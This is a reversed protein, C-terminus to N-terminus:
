QTAGLRTRGAGYHARYQLGTTILTITLIGTLLIGSVSPLWPSVAIAGVFGAAAAMPVIQAEIGHRSRLLHVGALLASLEGLAAAATISALGLGTFAAWGALLLGGIRWLNALMLTRSDGLALAATGPGIRFIRLALACGLFSLVVPAVTFDNGFLLAIVHNGGWTYVATFVTAAIALLLLSRRYHRAFERRNDQVRALIPLLLSLSGRALVLTPLLGLQLALAYRALEAPSVALAVVLRDGQFVGFMVLNNLLLPLGFRLMREAHGRDMRIRYRRRAVAHSMLVQVLAQVLSVWLLASFDGTWQLAPWVAVLGAVSATSEVKLTPGFRLRRQLRRYDLHLFGRLAPVMGLAAFSWAMEPYGFGRAAPYALAALLMGSLIGRIVELGHASAQFRATNGERAQVLLRDVALYSVMELCRLAIALMVALGMQEPGLLRALLVNRMLVAGEAIVQNCTVLLASRTIPRSM